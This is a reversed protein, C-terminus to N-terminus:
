KWSWSWAYMYNISQGWVLAGLFGALRVGLIEFGDIIGVREM